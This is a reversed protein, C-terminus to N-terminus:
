HVLHYAQLYMHGPYNQSTMKQIHIIKIRQVHYNTNKGTKLQVMIYNRHQQWQTRNNNVIINSNVPQKAIQYISLNNKKVEKVIWRIKRKNLKRMSETESLM